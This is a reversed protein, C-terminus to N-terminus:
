IMHTEFYTLFLLCPDAASLSIAAWFESLWASRQDVVWIEIICWIDTEGGGLVLVYALEFPEEVEFWVKTYWCACGCGGEYWGSDGGGGLKLLIESSNWSPITGGGVFCHCIGGGGNGGSSLSWFM